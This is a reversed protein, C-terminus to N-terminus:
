SIILFYINCRNIKSIAPGKYAHLTISWGMFMDSTLIDSAWGSTLPSNENLVKTASRTTMELLSIGRKRKPVPEAM